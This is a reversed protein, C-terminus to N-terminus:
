FKKNTIGHKHNQKRKRYSKLCILVTITVKLKKIFLNVEQQPTKEPEAVVKQQKNKKNNKKKNKPAPKESEAKPEEDDDDMVDEYNDEDEPAEEEFNSVQNKRKMIEEIARKKSM